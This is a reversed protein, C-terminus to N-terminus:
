WTTSAKEDLISAKRRSNGATGSAAFSSSTSASVRNASYTRRQCPTYRSVSGSVPCRMPLLRRSRARGSSPNRKHFRHSPLADRSRLDGTGRCRTVARSAGRASRARAPYGSNAAKAGFGGPNAPCAAADPPSVSRHTQRIDPAGTPRQGIEPNVAKALCTRSPASAITLAASTTMFCPMSRTPPLAGSAAGATDSVASARLPRGGRDVARALCILRRPTRMRKPRRSRAGVIAMSGFAVSQRRRETHPSSPGSSGGCETPVGPPRICHVYRRLQRAHRQRERQGEGSRGHGEGGTLDGIGAADVVVAEVLRGPLPNEVGLLPKTDLTAEKLGLGLGVVLRDEIRQNAPLAVDNERDPKEEAVRRLLGCL